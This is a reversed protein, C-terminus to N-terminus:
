GPAVSDLERFPQYQADGCQDPTADVFQTLSGSLFVAAKDKIKSKPNFRVCAVYRHSAGVPKVALPSIFAGHFDANDLLETRLYKAIKLQYQDPFVNGDNEPSPNSSSSLGSCAAVATAALLSVVWASARGCSKAHRRAAPRM